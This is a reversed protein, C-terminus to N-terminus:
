IEGKMFLTLFYLYGIIVIVIIMIIILYIFLYKKINFEYKSYQNINM